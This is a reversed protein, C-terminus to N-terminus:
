YGKCIKKEIGGSFLMSGIKGKAKVSSSKSLSRQIEEFSGASKLATISKSGGHQKTTGAFCDVFAPMDKDTAPLSRIDAQEVDCGNQIKGCASVEPIFQL